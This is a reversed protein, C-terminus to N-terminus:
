RAALRAPAPIEVTLRVLRALAAQELPPELYVNRGQTQWVLRTGDAYIQVDDVERLADYAESVPDPAGGSPVAWFFRDSAPTARPIVLASGTGAGVEGYGCTATRPSALRRGALM